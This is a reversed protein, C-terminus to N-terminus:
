PVARQPTLVVPYAPFHPSGAGDPRVKLGKARMNRLLPLHEARLDRLSRVDRRHCLGICYLNQPQAQDWKLDPHLM